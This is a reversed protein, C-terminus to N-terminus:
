FGIHQGSSHEQPLHAWWTAEQFWHWRSRGVDELCLREAPEQRWPVNRLSHTTNGGTRRGCPHSCFVAQGCGTVAWTEEQAEQSRPLGQTQLPGLRGALLLARRWFASAAARSQGAWRGGGQWAQSPDSKKWGWLHRLRARALTMLRPGRAQGGVPSPTGSQHHHHHHHHHTGRSHEALWSKSWRPPHPLGAQCKGGSLFPLLCTPRVPECRSCM